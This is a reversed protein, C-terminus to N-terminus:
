TIGVALRVRAMTRVAVARAREAGDQLLRDIAAPERMLAERRARFVTFYAELEEFLRRKFEGYGVGGARFEEEMRRVETGSAVLRYLAIITSGSPDKPDTVTASDTVIEM